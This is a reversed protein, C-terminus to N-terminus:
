RSEYNDYRLDITLIPVMQGGPPLAFVEIAYQGAMIATQLGAIEIYDNNVIMENEGVRVLYRKADPYPKWALAMDPLIQRRRKARREFETKPDEDSVTITEPLVLFRKGVYPLVIHRWEASPEGGKPVYSFERAQANAVRGVLEGMGGPRRILYVAYGEAIGDRPFTSWEVSIADRSIRETVNEVRAVEAPIVVTTKALAPQPEGDVWAEVRYTRTQEGPAPVIPGDHLEGQRNAQSGPVDLLVENGREGVRLVLLRDLTGEGISWGFTVTLDNQLAAEAWVETVPPMAEAQVTSTAVLDGDKGFTLLRYTVPVGLPVDSDLFGPEAGEYRVVPDTGAVVRSVRFKMGAAPPWDLKASRNGPLVKWQDASPYPAVVRVEKEDGGWVEVPRERRESADFAMNASLVYEGEPILLTLGEPGLDRPKAFWENLKELVKRGAVDLRTAEAPKFAASMGTVPFASTLRLRGVGAENLLYDRVADTQPTSKGEREVSQLWFYAETYRFVRVYAKAVAAVFRADRGARASDQQAAEELARVADPAYANGKELFFEGKEVLNDFEAARATLACLVLVM